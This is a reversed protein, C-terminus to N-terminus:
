DRAKLVAVLDLRDAQRRVTMASLLAALLVVCAAGVYSAPAMAVPIRLLERDISALSAGGIVRGLWLGPGLGLLVQIAQEGLLVASLEGRTFGLIRLTALDRSRVELAIRANNYVVGVAIAGAFLALVLQLVVFVDGEEARILGRDVCPRSVSAVAPLASLRRTVADVDLPDVALLLTNAQRTEGLLRALGAADMYTVVGLLDDVLAAVLVRIQRRDSELVEVDIPDGERVGLSEALPRSLSLGTAPLHLPRENAGLLVHMESRPDLGIIATTRTRHGARLRVPVRREGEARQVGPIHEAERVAQWPRAEGLNVTLGERHSVEFQVRLVDDISDGMVSGAAVIATALAISGGSLLVRWPQRLVDRIVMRAIPRLVAVLGDLRTRRYAPPTEPRMAEAPPISVASHVAAFTGGLGAAMAIGTAAGITWVDFRFLYAPFRFYRAYMTLISETALAGLAAGFVSGLTCIALALELFHVTLERTRYGLAKLTAIQERQTGVIRSLLIHLLFAAIGLFVVPMTRAARGLQAVKQDLLKSSAQDSRGVAGLGGYPELITDVRGITEREDADVALQIALDNFGGVLGMAKTLAGEDMWAVGFHWPDPLGLRPEAAWVFEPSVAVGVVRLKALRGEIIVTLTAGPVLGWAESFTASLVIEDSSGPEVQRGQTIRTQNLRAEEPWGVSVFHLVVPEDSAELVLRFDGTVRGEATAVGPLRRLRDLVPRPARKLHAFIDAFHADAYFADASAKVSAAASVAAVFSAIGCGLLVAITLCQYRLRWLDRALKLRLTKVV